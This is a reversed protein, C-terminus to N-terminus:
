GRGRPRGHNVGPTLRTPDWRIGAKQADHDSTIEQGKITRTKYGDGGLLMQFLGRLPGPYTRIHLTDENPDRSSSDGWIIRFPRRLVIPNNIGREMISGDGERIVVERLGNLPVRGHLGPPRVSRDIIPEFETMKCLILIM